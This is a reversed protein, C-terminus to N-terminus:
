ILYKHLGSGREAETGCRQALFFLIGLVFFGWAYEKQVSIQIIVEPFCFLHIFYLGHLHLPFFASCSMETRKESLFLLSIKPGFADNQELM